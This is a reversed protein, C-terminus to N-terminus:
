RGRGYRRTPPDAGILRGRPPGVVLLAVPVPSLGSGFGLRAPRLDARSVMPGPGSGPPLLVEFRVLDDLQADRPGAVVCQLRPVSMAGRHKRVPGAEPEWAWDEAHSRGATEVIGM